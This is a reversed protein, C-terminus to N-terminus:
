FGTGRQPSGAAAAQAAAPTGHEAWPAADVIQVGSRNAVVLHRGMVVIRNRKGVDITEEVRTLQRNLLTAGREGVLFTRGRVRAADFIEGIYLSTLKALVKPAQPNKLDIVLAGGPGTVIATQDLVRVNNPGFSRGLKVQAIVRNEALLSLSTIYVTEGDVFILVEGAAAVSKIMRRMLRRVTGSELDVRQMGKAGVTVLQDGIQVISLVRGIQGRDWTIEAVPGTETFRVLELGEEGFIAVRSGIVRVGSWRKFDEGRHYSAFNVPQMPDALGLLEFNGNEYLVVVRDGAADIDVVPAGLEIPPRITQDNRWRATPVFFENWYRPAVPSFLVSTGDVHARDDVRLEFRRDAIIAGGARERLVVRTVGLRAPRAMAGASVEPEVTTEIHSIELRAEPYRGAEALALAVPVPVVEIGARASLEAVRDVLAERVRKIEPTMPDIDLVLGVRDIRQVSRAATALATREAEAAFDSEPHAVAFAGLAVSDGGFGAAEVYAANGEARAALAGNAFAELFSRYAAPTGQARAADFAPKELVSHLSELLRSSPYQKRFLEFDALTPNRKLKHFDLRERAADLHRSDGYDRIFRYYAAPTDKAVAQRWARGACGSAFILAVVLVIRLGPITFSHQRTQM